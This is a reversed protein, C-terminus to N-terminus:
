KVIKIEEKRRTVVAPKVQSHLAQQHKLFTSKAVVDNALELAKTNSMHTKM